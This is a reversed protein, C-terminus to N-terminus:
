CCGSSPDCCSNQIASMKVKPKEIAPPTCANPALCATETSTLQLQNNQFSLGFKEITSGQYEVEIDVDKLQLANESQEIIKILKQPSLRHDIDSALWLQFNIKHDVRISGGCDIYKRTIQGIESVHFHPPVINGNPLTFTLDKQSALVAKFTSLNM